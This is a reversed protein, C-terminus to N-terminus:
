SVTAWMIELKRKRSEKQHYVRRSRCKLLQYSFCNARPDQSTFWLQHLSTFTFSIQENSTYANMCWTTKKWLPAIKQSLHNNMGWMGQRAPRRRRRPLQWRYKTSRSTKKCLNSQKRSLIIVLLTPYQANKSSRRNVLWNVPLFKQGTLRLLIHIVILFTWLCFELFSM